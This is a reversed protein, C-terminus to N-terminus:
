YFKQIASLAPSVKGVLNPFEKKIISGIVDSYTVELIKANKVKENLQNKITEVEPLEQM